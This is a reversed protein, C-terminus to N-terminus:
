RAVGAGGQGRPVFLLVESVRRLDMEPRVTVVQRLPQEPKAEVREVRGVVFMQASAPWEPDRLRVRQGAAVGSAEVVLDGRLTGDGVPGLQCGFFQGTGEVEVVANLWGASKQTIPLVLSLPGRVERVKGVLRLGSAAAVAGETVGDAAGARVAIMGASVDSLGSVVPAAVTREIADRNAPSLRIVEQLQRELERVREEAQRQRTQAVERQREMERMAEDRSAGAVEGPRLWLGLARMPAAAPTLVAQVPGRLSDGVFGVWRAPLVALLSVAALGM